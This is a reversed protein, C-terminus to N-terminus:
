QRWGRRLVVAFNYGVDSSGVALIGDAAPRRPRQDLEPVGTRQPWLDQDRAINELAAGLSVLISASEIYGTNFTTTVIPIQAFAPGWLEEAVRLVKLDQRNGQPAWVVLGIDAPTLGSRDLALQVAHRLGDTGLNPALFGEADMSMGYGLVEGLIRAGRQLASDASEVALLAAGDGLVKNKAADPRLHYSAEQENAFLFDMGDYNYFTQAYVEDAAGALIVRARGERLADYAYALSQLGAHPGASFSANVGRLYLQSSVWGATSNSTINSFSPINAVYTDSSFVSDMHGMESPGNCVGMAVGVDDGSNPSWKLGAHGLALRGASVAFRSIPNLVSFDLRRDIKSAPFDTIEGFCQARQGKLPFRTVPNIGITQNQLGALIDEIGLGISTVAGVGTIVVRHSPRQRPSLPADWRTIAVAANNGGFAYNASLFARYDAARATNPVYDLSCGPRPGSFNLTPPIFGANMALLQSTAELIGTAGMCHGFFSKTSVAPIDHGEIFRAIGRSEAKDNAETGSGHANICGIDALTLGADTLAGLLTRHVGTGRPDPTTPHYADSTTAHGAIRGLCGAGRLLAKEMDEVVWFCAAEGINLGFPQSFPAMRGPATAKLADFGSVNAVCLGDSGGVLVLDYHGRQVLSQALGLAVTTSSCATTVVWTEGGLRLASALAKGFGYLQAQLNMAEDFPRSSRGHKWAYEAEASSLGGNCTGLVLAIDRRPKSGPAPIEIGAHALARRAAAIAYQLYRDEFEAQEALTLAQTPDFGKIEGGLNTRFHSVQFRSVPAIGHQGARLAETVTTPDNGIPSLLGIGTIVAQDRTGLRQLPKGLVQVGDKWTAPEFAAAHRDKQLKFFERWTRLFQERLQDPTLLQPRAVVHAGNYHAWHYDFIRGQRQMRDWHPSGPFPTFIFFEATHVNAASLLSIVRDSIGDDDWDRGIGVSAFFRMGRDETAKVLDILVQREQAGGQIARISVPDVNMTCYFNKVGARAALDLFAPDRNLAITTNVFLKKGLPEIARFLAESYDRVHRHPFFLMDDALYVNEHKLSRMEEVVRDIPRFRIRGGMQNPLPCMPCSYLCGRMVQILDEDWDYHDNRYFIERRAAPIRAPDTNCGGSYRRQLRGAELDQLIVPWTPEGEGVNVADAHKLCEDAMFSPFLGGMIVKKGHSRFGDAIEFARSAQPTFCNIAVLDTPSDFHISQGGNDDILEVEVEPPTLAALLPIGLSPPTTYDGLYYNIAGADLEPLSGLFKEFRPYVFTIKM